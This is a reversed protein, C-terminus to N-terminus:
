ALPRSLSGSLLAGFEFLRHVREIGGRHVQAERQERPRPEPGGLGGHLEVGQEIQTPADGGEDPDGLPANVIELDEVLQDRLGARDVHHVTPVHVERPQVDKRLGLRAEDHPGLLVQL